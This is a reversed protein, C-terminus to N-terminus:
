VNFSKRLRDIFQKKLGLAEARQELSLLNEPLVQKEREGNLAIPIWKPDVLAPLEAVGILHSISAMKPEMLGFILKIMPHLIWPIDVMYMAHILGPYYNIVEMQFNQLERNNLNFMSTGNGDTINICGTEKVIRDVKEVVHGSFQKRLLALEEFYQDHKTIGWVIQHSERNRGAMEWGSLTWFELPFYQDTRDHVGFECKWRLCKCLANFAASEDDSHDLLFRKVQWDETCVREIDIPHYLSYNTGLESEFRARISAIAKTSM